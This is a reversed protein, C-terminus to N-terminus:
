SRTSKASGRFKLVLVSKQANMKRVRAALQEVARDSAGVIELVISSEAKGRYYGLSAHLTFSEFREKAARVIERKNKAETYIRHINKLTM